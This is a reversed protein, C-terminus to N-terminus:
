HAAAWSQAWGTEVVLPVTLTVVPRHAAEMVERIVPAAREVEAEPMEFVLEDHVQLLMRANLGEAALRAPLRIM